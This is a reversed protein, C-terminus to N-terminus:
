RSNPQPAWQFAGGFISGGQAPSSYGGYVGIGGTYIDGYPDRRIGGYIYGTPPILGPIRTLNTSFWRYVPAVGPQATYLYGREVVVRGNRIQYRYLWNDIQIFPAHPVSFVGQILPVQEYYEYPQMTQQPPGYQYYQPPGYQNYQAQQIMGDQVPPITPMYPRPPAPEDAYPMYLPPTLPVGAGPMPSANEIIGSPLPNPLPSGYPVGFPSQAQPIGRPPMDQAQAVIGGAGARAQGPMPELARQPRELWAHTEALEPQGYLVGNSGNGSQDAVNLSNCPIWVLEGGLAIARGYGAGYLQLVQAAALQSPFVRVDSFDGPFNNAVPPGSTANYAAVFLDSNSLAGSISTEKSALVGDIYGCAASGDFTVAYHHWEGANVTCPSAPLIDSGGITFQPLYAAPGSGGKIPGGSSQGSLLFDVELGSCAVAKPAPLYTVNMLRAWFALTGATLSPSTAPNLPADLFAIGRFRLCFAFPPIM